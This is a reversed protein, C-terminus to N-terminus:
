ARKQKYAFIFIIATYLYGIAVLYALPGGGTTVGTSPDTTGGGGALAILGFLIGYIVGLVRAPGAGRWGFIGSLLQLIAILVIIVGFIAVAGGVATSVSDGGGINRIVSGGLVVFAGLVGILIGTIMLFVAGIKALLTTPTKQQVWMMGAPPAAWQGPVGGPAPVYGPPPPAAPQWASPPPAIPPPTPSAPPQPATPSQPEM